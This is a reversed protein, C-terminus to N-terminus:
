DYYKNMEYMDYSIHNCKLCFILATIQADGLKLEM